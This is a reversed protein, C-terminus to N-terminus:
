NHFLLSDPFKALGSRARDKLLLSKVKYRHRIIAERAGLHDMELCFRLFQATEGEQFVAEKAWIHATEYDIEFRKM